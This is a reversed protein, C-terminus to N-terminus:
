DAQTLGKLSGLAMIFSLISLGFMILLTTGGLSWDIGSIFLTRICEIVHSFPNLAVPIKFFKPMLDVPILAKSIFYAPLIGLNLLGIFSDEDPLKLSFAYSLGAVFAVAFFIVVLSLVLGFLGSQIRVGLIYALGILIFTQVWVLFVSDLIHASIIASRKVPSIYIRKFIGSKRMYYNALGNFGGSFLILMALIGPLAYASYNGMGTFGPLRTVSGFTTSFLLLWFMPQVLTLFLPVLNQIRWSLRQSLIALTDVAYLKLEQLIM